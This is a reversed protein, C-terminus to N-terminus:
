SKPRLFRRLARRGHRICPELIGRSLRRCGRRGVDKRLWESKELALHRRERQQLAELREEVFLGFRVGVYSPLQSLAHVPVALTVRELREQASITSPILCLVLPLWWLWTSSSRRLGGSVRLRLLEEKEHSRFTNVM